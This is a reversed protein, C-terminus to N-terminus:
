PAKSNESDTKDSWNQSSMIKKDFGHGFGHGGFNSGFVGSSFGDMDKMSIGESKYLVTGKGADIMIVYSTDSKTDIVFFTYVLYGQVIGVHGGVVMGDSVQKEATTAANSFSTTQHEKIYNKMADAVNVSGTIKPIEQNKATPDALVSIPSFTGIVVVLLTVAVISPIIIKRSKINTM